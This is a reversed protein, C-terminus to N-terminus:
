VLSGTTQSLETYDKAFNSHNRINELITLNRECVTLGLSVVTWASSAHGTPDCAVVASINAQLALVASLVKQPGDGLWRDERKLRRIEHQKKVTDIVTDLVSEIDSTPAEDNGSTDSTSKNTMLNRKQKEDLQDFAAQWINPPKYGRDSKAESKRVRHSSTATSATASSSTPQLGQYTRLGENGSPSDHHPHSRGKLYRDKWDKSNEKFNKWVMAPYLKEFPM